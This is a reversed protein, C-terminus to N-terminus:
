EARVQDRMVARYFPSGAQGRLTWEERTYVMISPVAQSLVALDHGIHRVENKRKWDGERLIVLVDLDSDQRAEGRAKSGFILMEEVLDPFQQILVKRYADLWAQEEATLKM